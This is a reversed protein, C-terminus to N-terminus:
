TKNKNKVSKAITTEGGHIVVKDYQASNHRGHCISGLLRSPSLTIWVLGMSMIMKTWMNEDKHSDMNGKQLILVAHHPHSAKLTRGAAAAAAPEWAGEFSAMLSCWICATTPSCASTPPFYPTLRELIVNVSSFMVAMISIFMPSIYNYFVSCIRMSM